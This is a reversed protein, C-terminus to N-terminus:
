TYLGPRSRVTLLFELMDDWTHCGIEYVSEGTTPECLSLQCFHGLVVSPDTEDRNLFHCALSPWMEEALQKITNQPM